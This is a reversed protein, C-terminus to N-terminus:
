QVHIPFTAHLRYCNEPPRKVTCMKGSTKTERNVMPIKNRSCKLHMTCTRKFKCDVDFNSRDALEIFFKKLWRYWSPSVLPVSIATKIHKNKGLMETLVKLMQITFRDLPASSSNWDVFETQLNIYLYTTLDSYFRWLQFHLSNNKKKSNLTVSVIIRVSFEIPLWQVIM